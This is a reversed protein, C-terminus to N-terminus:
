ETDFIKKLDDTNRIRSPALDLKRKLLMRLGLGVDDFVGTRTVAKYRMMIELKHTRGYRAISRLVERHFNVIAPEAVEVGEELAIHRLSDMIAPIDVGQPCSVSCTHCGICVWIASSELVEKKMGFQVLRNIHNPHYDMIGGFPCGGSCGTCHFCISVSSGSLREVKEAFSRDLASTRIVQGDANWM